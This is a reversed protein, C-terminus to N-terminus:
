PAITLGSSLGAAVGALLLAVSAAVLIMLALALRPETVTTAM